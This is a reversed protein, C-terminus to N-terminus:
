SNNKEKLYLVPGNSPQCTGNPWKRERRDSSRDSFTPQRHWVFLACAGHCEDWHHNGVVIPQDQYPVSVCFDIDRNFWILDFLFCFLFRLIWFWIM